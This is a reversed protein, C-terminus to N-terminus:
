PRQAGIRPDSCWRSVPACTSSSSPTLLRTRRVRVVTRAPGPFRRSTVPSRGCTMRCCPFIACAVPVWDMCSGAAGSRWRRPVSRSSEDDDPLLPEFLAEAERLRGLTEEYLASVMARDEASAQPVPREGQGDADAAVTSRMLALWDPQAVHGQACLLGCLMGHNEAASDAAGLRYFAQDLLDMNMTREGQALGPPNQNAGNRVHARGIIFFFRIMLSAQEMRSCVSLDPSARQGHIFAASYNAAHCGLADIGCFFEIEIQQRRLDLLQDGQALAQLPLVILQAGALGLELGLLGIQVFVVFEGPALYFGHDGAELNQLGFQSLSDAATAGTM